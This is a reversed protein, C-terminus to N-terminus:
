HRLHLKRMVRDKFTTPLKVSPAKPVHPAANLLTPPPDVCPVALNEPLDCGSTDPNFHLGEPCTEVEGLVGNNCFVFSACSNQHNIDGTHPPGNPHTCGSGPPPAAPAGPCVVNSALDCM